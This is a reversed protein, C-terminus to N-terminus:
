RAGRVDGWRRDHDRDHDRLAGLARREVQQLGIQEGDELPPTGSVVRARARDYTRYAASARLRATAASAAARRPTLPSSVIHSLQLLLDGRQLRAHRLLRRARIWRTSVM